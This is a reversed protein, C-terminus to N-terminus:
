VPQFRGDLFESVPRIWMPHTGEESKTYAVAPAGTAEIVCMLVVTYTHGTKVHKWPRMADPFDIEVGMHMRKVTRTM